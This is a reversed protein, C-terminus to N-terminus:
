GKKLQAIQRGFRIWNQGMIFADAEHDNLRRGSEQQAMLKTMKKSVKGKWESVMVFHVRDEYRAQLTGVIVGIALMLTQMAKVNVVTSDYKSVTRMFDSEPKEILVFDYDDNIMTFHERIQSIRHLLSKKTDTLLTYSTVYKMGELVAIGISAISPDISLIKKGTLSM